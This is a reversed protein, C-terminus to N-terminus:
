RFNWFRRASYTAANAFTTSQSAIEARNASADFPQATCRAPSGRPSEEAARNTRPADNPFDRETTCPGPHHAERARTGDRAEAAVGRGRRVSEGVRALGAM